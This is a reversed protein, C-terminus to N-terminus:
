VIVFVEQAIRQRREDAFRDLQEVLELLQQEFEFVARGVALQEIREKAARVGDLTRRAQEPEVLDNGKGVVDLGKEIRQAFTLRM